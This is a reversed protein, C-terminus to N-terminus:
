WLLLITLHWLWVNTQIPWSATEWEGSLQRAWLSMTIVNRVLKGQWHLMREWIRFHKPMDRSSLPWLRTGAGGAMVVAYCDDSLM